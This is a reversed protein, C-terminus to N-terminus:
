AAAASDLPTFRFRCRVRLSFRMTPMRRKGSKLRAAIQRGVVCDSSQVHLLSEGVLLDDTELLIGLRLNGTM